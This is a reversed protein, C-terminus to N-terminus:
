VMWEHDLTGPAIRFGEAPSFDVCLMADSTFVLTRGVARSRFWALGAKDGPHSAEITDAYREAATKTMRGVGQGRWGLVQAARETLSGPEMRYFICAIDGDLHARTVAEAHPKIGHELLDTFFAKSRERAEDRAKDQDMYIDENMRGCASGKTRHACTGM